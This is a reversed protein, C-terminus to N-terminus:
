WGPNQYFGKYVQTTAIPIPNWYHKEDFVKSVALVRNFYTHNKDFEVRYCNKYDDLHAIHWRRLDYWRNGDEGLLEVERENWIRKRFDEKSGLFKGAVPPMGARARVINVAEVATLSAGEAKGNPGSVENVAEAYILYVEALRLVPNSMTYQNWQKDYTNVGKPWWKKMIFPSIFETTNDKGGKYMDLKNNVPDRFTWQDQDVLINGRFRPDRNNWPNNPNFGSNPDDIPLGNAMEFKEVANQTVCATIDQDGFRKPSINRGHVQVFANGSYGAYAGKNWNVCAIITEKSWPNFGDNRAFQKYYDAWPVLSYVGTNALKILEWAASASRSMHNTSYGLAGTSELVYTPSGAYLLVRAKLGLCAGKTIRGINKDPTVRGVSTNNWDDPLLTAAKDLDEVIHEVLEWTNLRDLFPDDTAEIYNEIYPMGGWNRLLNYHHYARFFIAQGEILNREEQTADVMFELKKVVLNADRIMVWANPWIGTGNVTIPNFDAWLKASYYFLSYFSPTATGYMYNGEAMVSILGKTAVFHDCYGFFGGSRGCIVDWILAYQKDVYGQASQYTGFVDKDSVTADPTQDLYEDCASLLVTAAILVTIFINKKLNKM